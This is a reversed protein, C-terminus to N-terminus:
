GKDEPIGGAGSRRYCSQVRGCLGDADGGGGRLNPPHKNVKGRPPHLEPVRASRGCETEAGRGEGDRVAVPRRRPVFGYRYVGTIGQVAFEIETAASGGLTSAREATVQGRALREIQHRPLRLFIRQQEMSPNAGVPLIMVDLEYGGGEMPLAYSYLRNEVHIGGMDSVSEEPTRPKGPLHAQLKVEEATHVVWGEPVPPPPPLQSESSEKPGPSNNPQQGSPGPQPSTPAREKDSSGAVPPEKKPRTAKYAVVGGVVLVVVGVAVAAILGWKPGAAEQRRKKKRPRRPKVATGM